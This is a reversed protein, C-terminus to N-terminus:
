TNANQITDGKAYHANVKTELIKLALFIDGTGTTAIDEYAEIRTPVHYVRVGIGEYEWRVDQLCFKNEM